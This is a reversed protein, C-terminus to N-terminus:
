VHARGIKSETKEVPIIIYRTGTKKVKGGNCAKISFDSPSQQQNESYYNCKVDYYQSCNIDSPWTNM